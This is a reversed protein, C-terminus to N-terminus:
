LPQIKINRFHVEDHHDQLLIYSEDFNGFTGKWQRFKSYAVLANWIDSNRDYQLVKVGNLWHEVHNGLVKVMATNWGDIQFTEWPGKASPILDYLSAQTRNGDVGFKADPHLNDDLIQYECGISAGQGKDLLPDVFYKIGSNAGPTLRFDLKLIFNGYISDSIIDGGGGNAEVVLEGDRVSWGMEPFKGTAASHWGAGSKGDFLLQWGEVEELPTLCNLLTSQEPASTPTMQKEVGDTLIRVNRWRVTKGFRDSSVAHVQLAIFGSSERSDILNSCPVGNVWTRLSSGVAEIRMHSWEGELCLNERGYMRYLWGRGNEEYIGGTWARESPDIEVQYGYVKQDLHSRIQVGSNLGETMFDLELIFDSYEADSVLFANRLSDSAIGVIEGDMVEFRADGGVVHWGDLSDGEFIPVWKQSCSFLLLLSAALVGRRM